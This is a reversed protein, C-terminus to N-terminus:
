EGKKALYKDYDSPYDFDDTGDLIKTYRRSIMHESLPIDNM